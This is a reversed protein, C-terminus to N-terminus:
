DTAHNEDSQGAANTTRGEAEVIWLYTQRVIEALTLLDDRGFNDSESWTDDGDKKYIRRLQVNHWNGNSSSSSNSWVAAKLKGIRVRHVPKPKESTM